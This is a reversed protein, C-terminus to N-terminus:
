VFITEAFRVLTKRAGVLGQATTAANSPRRKLVKAITEGFDTLHIHWPDRRTTQAPHLRAAGSTDPAGIALSAAYEDRELFLTCQRLRITASLALSQWEHIIEEDRPRFFRMAADHADNFDADTAATWLASYREGSSWSKGYLRHCIVERLSRVYQDEVITRAAEHGGLAETLAEIRGQFGPFGDPYNTNVM